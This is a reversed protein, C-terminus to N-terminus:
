LTDVARADTRQFVLRTSDPSWWYGRRRDLEEQAAFEAVAYEIGEPHRTLQRPAGGATDMVWLDGDRVFAVHRGDPSLHPDYTPGAPDLARRTGRVRDILHLQGGLPVLVTSGDRSLDIDVVGRTATRSRERRAKEADSLQEDGAGLLDAATVLTRVRGTRSDLEYLDAAFERAATRRFLVAGDPAIALVAPHGLRFNYTAAADALLQANLAPWTMTPPKARACAAAFLACVIVPRM